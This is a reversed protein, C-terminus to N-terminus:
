LLVLLVTLLFKLFLGTHQLKFQVHVVTSGGRAWVKNPLFTQETTTLEFSNSLLLAPEGPQLELIVQLLSSTHQGWASVPVSTGLLKGPRRVAVDARENRGNRELEEWRQSVFPIWRCASELSWVLSQPGVQCKLIGQWRTRGVVEGENPRCLIKRSRLM